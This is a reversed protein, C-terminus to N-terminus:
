KVKWFKEELAKRAEAADPLDYWSGGYKLKGNIVLTAIWRQKSNSWYVGKVGSKNRVSLNATRSRISRGIVELNAKRCDWENGNLCKIWLDKEKMILNKLRILNKQSKIVKETDSYVWKTTEIKALDEKDVKVKGVLNGLQDHISLLAINRKVEVVNPLRESRIDLVKRRKRTKHTECLSGYIIYNSCGDFSCEKKLKLRKKKREARQLAICNKCYLSLGDDKAKDKNFQDLNLPQELTCDKNKCVKM